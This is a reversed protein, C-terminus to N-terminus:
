AVKKAKEEATEVLQRIKPTKMRADIQVDLTEARKILDARELEESAQVVPKVGKAANVADQPNTYWGDGLKEEEVRSNVYVPALASHFLWAPYMRGGSEGYEAQWGARVAAEENADQVVVQPPTMRKPYEQSDYYQVIYERGQTDHVPWPLPRNWKVRMRREQTADKVEVEPPNLAKPFERFEYKYNKKVGRIQNPQLVGSPREALEQAQTALFQLAATIVNLSMGEPLNVQTM